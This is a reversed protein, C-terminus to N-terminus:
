LTVSECKMSHSAISILESFISIQFHCKPAYFVVQPRPIEIEFTSERNVANLRMGVVMSPLSAHFPELLYNGVFMNGFLARCLIDALAAM